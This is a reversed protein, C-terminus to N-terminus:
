EVGVGMEGEAAAGGRRRREIVRAVAEQVERESRITNTVLWEKVKERLLRIGSGPKAAVHMNGVAGRIPGDGGGGGATASGARTGGGPGADGVGDEEEARFPVIELALLRGAELGTLGVTQELRQVQRELQAKEDGGAGGGQSAPSSQQQLLPGLRSLAIFFTVVAKHAVRLTQFPLYPTQPLSLQTPLYRFLSPPLSTLIPNLLTPLQTLYTFDLHTLTHVEFTLLALFTLYRWQM